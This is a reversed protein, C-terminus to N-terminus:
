TILIIDTCSADYKLYFRGWIKLLLLFEYSLIQVHQHIVNKILKLNNSIIKNNDLKDRKGSISKIKIMLLNNLSYLYM